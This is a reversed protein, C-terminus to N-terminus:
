KASNFIFASKQETLLYLLQYFLLLRTAIGGVRQLLHTTILRKELERKLDKNVIFYLWTSQVDKLSNYKSAKLIIKLRYNGAKLLGFKNELDVECSLTDNYAIFIFNRTGDDVDSTFNKSSPVKIYKDMKKKEFHVTVDCLTNDEGAVVFRPKFLIATRAKSVILYKLFCGATSKIIKVKPNMILLSDSAKSVICLLLLSLSLTFFKSNMNKTLILFASSLKRGDKNQCVM